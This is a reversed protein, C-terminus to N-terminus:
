GRLLERIEQERKYILYHPDQGDDSDPVYFIGNIEEGVEKRRRLEEAAESLSKLEERLKRDRESRELIVFPTKNEDASKKTEAGLFFADMEKLMSATIEKPM